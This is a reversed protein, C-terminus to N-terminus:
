QNHKSLIAEAIKMDSPFTIKINETDGEVLHVEGFYSEYVTADDTYTQEVCNEYATLLKKAQFVQPTQVRKIVNRDIIHSGDDKVERLSDETDIVPIACGFKEATSYCRELIEHTILPRVADHIAVIESSSVHALGQSVSHFRTAGGGTTVVKRAVKYKAILEHWVIMHSEPLVLIVRMEPDFELFKEITWIIVPKGLLDLFQKPTESRMRSGIGGGVIVVSRM